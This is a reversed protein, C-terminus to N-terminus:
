EKAGSDPTLSIVMAACGITILKTWDIPPGAGLVASAHGFFYAAAMQTSRENLRAVIWTKM